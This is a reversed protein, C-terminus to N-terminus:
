GRYLQLLPEAQGNWRAHFAALRARNAPDSPARYARCGIIPRDPGTIVIGRARQQSRHEAVLARRHTIISM